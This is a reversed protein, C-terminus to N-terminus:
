LKNGISKKLHFIYIIANLNKQEIQNSFMDYFILNDKWVNVFNYQPPIEIDKALLTGDLKYLSFFSKVGIKNEWKYPISYYIIVFDKLAFIGKIIGKSSYYNKLFEQLSISNKTINIFDDRNCFDQIELLKEGNKKYIKISPQFFGAVWIRDKKDICLNKLGGFNISSFLKEDKCLSKKLLLDKSFVYVCDGTDDARPSYFAINGNHFIDFWNPDFFKLKSYFIHEKKFTLNKDFELFTLRIPDFLYFSTNLPFFLNLSQYCGPGQGQKGLIALEEGKKNYVIIKRTKEFDGILIKDNTILVENIVGVYDDGKLPVKDKLVFFNKFSRDKIVPENNNKVQFSQCASFFYLVLVVCIIQLLRM